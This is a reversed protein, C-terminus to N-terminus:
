VESLNIKPILFQKVKFIMFNNKNLGGDVGVVRFLLRFGIPPIAEKIEDDNIYQLCEYSVV